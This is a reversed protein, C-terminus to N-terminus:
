TLIVSVRQHHSSTTHHIGVQAKLIKFELEVNDIDLDKMMLDDIIISYQAFLELLQEDQIPKANQTTMRLLATICDDIYKQLNPPCSRGIYTM